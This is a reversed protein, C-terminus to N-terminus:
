EIKAIFDELNKLCKASGIALDGSNDIQKIKESPILKLMPRTTNEFIDLRKMVIAAEDDERGRKSLRSVIADHPVEISLVLQLELGLYSKVMPVQAESRPFGDLVILLNTCGENKEFNNKVQEIKKALNEAVFKDDIFGGAKMRSAEAPDLSELMDRLMDGTSISVARIKRTNQDGNNKQNQNFADITGALLSGKGSGPAGTIALLEVKIM